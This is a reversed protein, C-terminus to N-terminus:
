EEPTSETFRELDDVQLDGFGMDGPAETTLTKIRRLVLYDGTVEGDARIDYLHGTLLEYANDCAEFARIRSAM